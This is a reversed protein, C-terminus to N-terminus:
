EIILEVCRYSEWNAGAFQPSREAGYSETNIRHRAIGYHRALYDACYGARAASIETRGEATGFPATYGRLTINLSHNERLREGAENLIHRYSEIMVASNAEFYVANLLRVVRGQETEEVVINEEVHSFIINEEPKSQRGGSGSGWRFMFPKVSIGAEIVPLPIPGGTEFVCDVGGGAYIKFANNFFTYTAYLRAGLVASGNTSEKDNETFMHIVTEYHEVRAFILGFLLDAQLGIGWRLPLSYGTKLMLPIFRLNLLLPNTGEIHTYGSELAFRFRKYEYGLAARFGPIPKIHEEFLEPPTYMHVAAEIFFPAYWSEQALSDQAAPRAAEIDETEDLEQAFSPVCFLSFVFVLSVFIFDKKDSCPASIKPM